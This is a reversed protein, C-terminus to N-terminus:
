RKITAVEVILKQHTDIMDDLRWAKLSQSTKVQVYLMGGDACGPCGITQIAQGDDKITSL